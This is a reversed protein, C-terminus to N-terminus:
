AQNSSPILSTITKSLSPLRAHDISGFDNKFDIYTLYIDNNTLGTDEFMIIIIQPTEKHNLDKNISIYYKTNKVM